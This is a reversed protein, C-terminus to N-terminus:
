KQLKGKLMRNLSDEYTLDQEFLRAALTDHTWGEAIKKISADKFKPDRRKVNEAEDKTNYTRVLRGNVYLGHRQDADSNDREMSGTKGSFKYRSEKIGANKKAIAIAEERTGAEDTSIRYIQGKLDVVWEDSQRQVKPEVSATKRSESPMIRGPTDRWNKMERNENLKSFLQIELSEAYNSKKKKKNKKAAAKKTKEMDIKNPGKAKITRIPDRRSKKGEEVASRPSYDDDDEEDYSSDGSLITDVSHFKITGDDYKVEFEAPGGYTDQDSEGQVIAHKGDIVVSDGPKPLDEDYMMDLWDRYQPDKDLDMSENVNRENESLMYDWVTVLMSKAVAIKEQCWEPLNDGSSIVDDIGDVARKLTELNNDAMGAEDDYEPNYNNM